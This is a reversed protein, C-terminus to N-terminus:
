PFTIMRSQSIGRLFSLRQAATWMGSLLILYRDLVFHSNYKIMSCNLKTTGINTSISCIYQSKKILPFIFRRILFYRNLKSLFHRVNIQVSLQWLWIRSTRQLSDETNHAFDLLFGRDRFYLEGLFVAKWYSPLSYSHSFSKAIISKRVEACRPCSLKIAYDYINMTDFYGEVSYVCTITMNGGVVAYEEGQLPANSFESVKQRACYSTWKRM